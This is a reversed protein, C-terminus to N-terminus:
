YRRTRKGFNGGGGGGGGNGAHNMVQPYTNPTPIAGPGGTTQQPVYTQLGHGMNPPVGNFPVISARNMQPPPPAQPMQHHAYQNMQQHPPQQPSYNVQPGIQPPYPPISPMPAPAQPMQGAPMIPAQQGHMATQNYM